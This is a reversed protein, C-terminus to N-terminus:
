LQLLYDFMGIYDDQDIYTQIINRDAQLFDAFGPIYENLTGARKHRQIARGMGKIFRTWKFNTKRIIRVSQNLALDQWLFGIHRLPHVVVLREKREEMGKRDAILQVMNKDAFDTIFQRIMEQHEKILPLTLFTDLEPTSYRIGSRFHDKLDELSVEELVNALDDLFIVYDPTSFPSKQKQIWTLWTSRVHDFEDLFYLPNNESLLKLEEVTAIETDDFFLTFQSPLLNEELQLRYPIELELLTKEIKHRVNEQLLSSIAIEKLDKSSGKPVEWKFAMEKANGQEFSSFLGAVLTCLIGVSKKLM